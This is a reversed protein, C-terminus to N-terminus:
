NEGREYEIDANLNEIAEKCKLLLIDRASPGGREQQQHQM